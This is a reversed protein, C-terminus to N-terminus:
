LENEDNEENLQEKKKLDNSLDENSKDISKGLISWAWRDGFEMDFWWNVAIVSDNMSSLSSSPNMRVHHYWMSPLYLAQGANVTIQIPRAYKFYPYPRNKPHTWPLTPDLAIWPTYTKPHLPTLTWSASSDM